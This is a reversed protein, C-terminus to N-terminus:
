VAIATLCRRGFETIGGTAGTVIAYRMLFTTDGANLGTIVASASVSTTQSDSFTNGGNVQFAGVRMTLLKVSMTIASITNAGTAAVTAYGGHLIVAGTPVNGPWQIQTAVTILVRGTSRVPVTVSPGVTALDVYAASSTCQEFAEVSNAFVYPVQHFTDQGTEKVEIGYSGDSIVGVQVRTSGVENIVRLTGTDIAANQLRPVRALRDLARELNIVRQILDPVEKRYRSQSDSM